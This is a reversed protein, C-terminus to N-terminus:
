HKGLCVNREYTRRNQLGRSIKKSASQTYCLEGPKSVGTGTNTKVCVWRQLDNCAETIRNANLLRLINSNLFASDGVNYIWSILAAKQNVTLNVKVHKDILANIRHIEKLLLEKCEADSKVDTMKVKYTYGYCITPVKVIDLYANNSKGELSMLMNLATLVVAGVVFALNRLQSLKNM